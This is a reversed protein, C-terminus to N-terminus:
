RIVRNAFGNTGDKQHGLVMGCARSYPIQYTSSQASYCGVNDSPPRCAAAPSTIKRWGHPCSGRAADRDTIRMWGKEGGCELEMDCLYVFRIYKRGKHLLPWIKWSPNLQYIDRCSKIFLVMSLIVWLLVVHVTIVVALVAVLWWSAVMSSSHSRVPVSFWHQITSELSLWTSILDLVAPPSMIM